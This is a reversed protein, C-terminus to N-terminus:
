NKVKKLTRRALAESGGGGRRSCGPVPLPRGRTPVSRLRSGPVSFLLLFPSPFLGLLLCLGWPFM